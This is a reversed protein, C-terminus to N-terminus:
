GEAERGHVPLSECVGDEAQLVRVAAEPGPGVQRAVGEVGGQRQAGQLRKAQERTGLDGTGERHQARQAHLAAASPGGNGSSRDRGDHGCLHKQGELFPAARGSHGVEHAAAEAGQEGTAIRVAPEPFAGASGEGGGSAQSREQAGASRAVDRGLGGGPELPVLEVVPAPVAAGELGREHEFRKPFAEPRVEHDRLVAQANRVGGGVLALDDVDDASDLVHAPGGGTGAAHREEVAIRALASGDGFRRDSGELGALVGLEGEVERSGVAATAVVQEGTGVAAIM